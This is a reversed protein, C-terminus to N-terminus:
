DEDDGKNREHFDAWAQDKERQKRTKVPAAPRYRKDSFWFRNIVEGDAVARRGAALIFDHATQVNGGEKALLRIADAAVRRTGNDAVVSLEELLHHAAILEGGSEPNVPVSVDVPVPVRAPVRARTGPTRATVTLDRRDGDTGPSIKHPSRASNTSEAAQKRREYVRKAQLWEDYCVDNRLRDTDGVPDFKRVIKAGYIAWLEEGLGSMEALQSMDSPITCDDTQWASTLLYIYGARAAPHMMAVASSARFADIKFPMWQQWRAVM